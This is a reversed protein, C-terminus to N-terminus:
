VVRRRRRPHASRRYTHNKHSLGVLFRQPRISVQTAFGVLCGAHQEDAHTTVVFMPYDLLGVLAEFAADGDQYDVPGDEGVGAGDAQSVPATFSSGAMQEAM